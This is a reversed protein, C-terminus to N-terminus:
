FTLRFFIRHDAERGFSIGCRGVRSHHLPSECLEPHRYIVSSNKGAPSGIKGVLANSLIRLIRTFVCRRMELPWLGDVSLWYLNVLHLDSRTIIPNVAGVSKNVLHNGNRHLTSSARSMGAPPSLFPPSRPSPASSLMVAASNTLCHCSLFISLMLLLFIQCFVITSQKQFWHFVILLWIGHFISLYNGTYLM